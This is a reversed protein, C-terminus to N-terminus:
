CLTFSQSIYMRASNSMFHISLPFTMCVDEQEAQSTFLDVFTVGNDPHIILSPPIGVLEQEFIDKVSSPREHRKRGMNYHLNNWSPHYVVTM